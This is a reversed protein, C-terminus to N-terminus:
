EKPAIVNELYLDSKSFKKDVLKDFEISLINENSDFFSHLKNLLPLNDMVHDLPFSHVLDIAKLGELIVSNSKYDASYFGKGILLTSLAYLFPPRSSEKLSFSFYGLISLVLVLLSIFIPYTKTRPTKLKRRQSIDLVLDFAHFENQKVKQINTVTNGFVPQRAASQANLTVPSNAPNQTSFPAKNQFCATMLFTSSLGVLAIKTRQHM